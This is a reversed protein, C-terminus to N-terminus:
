YCKWGNGHKCVNNGVFPGHFGVHRNAAVTKTGMNWKDLAALPVTYM